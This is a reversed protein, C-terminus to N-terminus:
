KSGLERMLETEAFDEMAQSPRRSNLESMTLKRPAYRCFLLSADKGSLKQLRFVKEDSIGVSQNVSTIIFKFCPDLYDVLDSFFRQFEVNDWFEDLGDLVFCHDSNGMPGNQNHYINNVHQAFHTADIFGHELQIGFCGKFADIVTSQQAIRQM